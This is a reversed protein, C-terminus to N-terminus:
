VGPITRLMEVRETTTKTPFRNYRIMESDTLVGVTLVGLKASERIVNLHGEHIIDTCFCTYVQKMIKVKGLMKNILRKRFVLLWIFVASKNSFYFIEEPNIVVKIIALIFEIM